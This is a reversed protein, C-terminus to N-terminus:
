EHDSVERIANCYATATFYPTAMTFSEGVLLTKGDVAYTGLETLVALTEVTLTVDCKGPYAAYILKGEADTSSTAAMHETPDGVHTVKGLAFSADVHYLTEGKVIPLRDDEDLLATDVGSLVITYEVTREEEQGKFLSLSFSDVFFVVYVTCLVIAAVVLLIGADVANFATRRKPSSNPNKM